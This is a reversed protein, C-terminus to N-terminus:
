KHRNHQETAALSVLPKGALALAMVTNLLTLRIAPSAGMLVMLVAFALAMIIITGHVAIHPGGRFSIMAESTVEARIAFVEMPSSFLRRIIAHFFPPKRLLSGIQMRNPM